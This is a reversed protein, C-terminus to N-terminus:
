TWRPDGFDPIELLQGGLMASEHAVLGPVAYRAAMWVNNAPQTGTACANVFDDVLFLHSGGHGGPLGALEAPLQAVDHVRACNQFTGRETAVGRRDLLDDLREHRARDKTVWVAGACNFEFSAATGYVSIRTMSPHGVRRFENIRCSSGDSM